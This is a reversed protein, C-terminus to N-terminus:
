GKQKGYENELQRKIRKGSISFVCIAIGTILVAFLMMAIGGYFLQESISLYSM